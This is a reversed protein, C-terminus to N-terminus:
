FYILKENTQKQKLSVICTSLGVVENHSKYSDIFSSSNLSGVFLTISPHYVIVTTETILIPLALFHLLPNIWKGLM